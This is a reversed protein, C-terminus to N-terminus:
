GVYVVINENEIKTIFTKLDQEAPGELVKGTNSFESGHCPCTYIGGGVNLGCGQHTCELLSSVYENGQIRYVCIPFKMSESQIIVFKRPEKEGKREVFFESLPVSIKGEVPVANVYHLSECSVLAGGLLTIGVTAYCSSKIFAKREM